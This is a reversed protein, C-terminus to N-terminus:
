SHFVFTEDSLMCSGKSAGATCLQLSKPSVSFYCNSAIRHVIWSLAHQVHTCFHRLNAMSSLIVAYEQSLIKVVIQSSVYFNIVCQKCVCKM